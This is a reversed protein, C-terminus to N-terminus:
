SNPKTQLAVVQPKMTGSLALLVGVSASINTTQVLQSITIPLGDPDYMTLSALWSFSNHTFTGHAQWGALPFFPHVMLM